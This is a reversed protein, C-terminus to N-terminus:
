RWLDQLFRRCTEACAKEKDRHLALCRPSVRVAPYTQSSATLLLGTTDVIFHSYHM